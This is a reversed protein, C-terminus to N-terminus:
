PEIRRRLLWARHRAADYPAPPSGAAFRQHAHRWYEPSVNAGDGAVREAADILELATQVKPWGRLSLLVEGGPTVFPVTTCAIGPAVARVIDLRSVITGYGNSAWRVFAFTAGPRFALVRRRRDLIRESAHRGFRLWREIHGPNHTLEVETLETM